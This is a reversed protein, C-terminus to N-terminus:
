SGLHAEEALLGKARLHRDGAYAGRLFRDSQGVLGVVAERRRDEAAVNRTRDLKCLADLGPDAVDIPRGDMVFRLHRKSAHLGRAIAAETAFRADVFERLKAPNCDLRPRSVIRELANAAAVYASGWTLLWCIDRSSRSPWIQNSPWSM